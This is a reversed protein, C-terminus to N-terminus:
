CTIGPNAGLLGSLINLLDFSGNNTTTTTPTTTTAPTGLGFLALLPNFAPQTQAVYPNYATGYLNSGGGMFLSLLQLLQNFDISSTSGNNAIENLKATTIQVGNAAFISTNTSQFDGSEITYPDGTPSKAAFKVLDAATIETPTTGTVPSDLSAIDNFYGVNGNGGAVITAAIQRVDTPIFQDLAIKALESKSFGNKDIDKAQAFALFKGISNNAITPQNYQTNLPLQFSM